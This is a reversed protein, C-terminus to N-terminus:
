AGYKDTFDRIFSTIHKIAKNKKLFSGSLSDMIANKEILNSYEYTSVQERLVSDEIDIEKAFTTLEQESMEEEYRNYADIVSEDPALTPAVKDLFGKILEIKLRLKPDSAHELEQKIFRIEKDREKENETNLSAILNLIYSVNIKDTHMLELEFDIDHLISEKSAESRKFEEYVKFYKSKYDEYTQQSIMLETEDFEFDSFSQLRQLMKTVNKFAVIFKRKDEERELEDVEEPIVAIERLSRLADKFAKLYEEYSAMLVTDVNDTRSFLKIADDTNDKLNRYCVVNGYPKTSKEVRNTRSYAQLLDHYVMNKDIYLTNLPKSDFGTLFMKVVLLIDIQAHKVKKSVDSFYRDWTETSYDTNYLKNYDVIMRDLAERSHEGTGDSEENQGYSYIGAIKLKHDKKKFIDYYKILTSISDVAFMACYGKSKSRRIHNDLIHDAILNLRREDHWVEETDIAQVKTTDEENINANFTRIYEVSFGLVNGDRIADKILYHHLCKEFLDATTRGDQSKNEVFRPTGTFGFYQSNQFHRDIEKRMDGFQSRHCEDIIFVVHEQKYPAMINEYRPNKIANNMKQITTVIFRKMPDKVQEILIETKDTRDVSGKQFKNFESITQSDLDQRDVLFFVKKISEEDALIQGAKFSTLTKGSGTTHWIYGNNKTETARKVLAEVAYVQYPRMVMLAKDTDNIVMYRSIMKALHCPQLFSRSFDQLSTILENKEDSWFFTFGFQIDYDSNSFYKTDVGNSVVFIQLFRYLGTFTHRRYRQIQNFAEKFDLGRRKLEIQALPLGNILITVDYRNTYKGTITTQTTVQFLNKCWDKTNLLEVYLQTGDEREVLLKDRLIKSSDYISKGEILTLIRKFEIDSIPQGNLKHENFLNLQQKFNALLADYNAIKVAQYGQNVLQKHLNKELEAEPQYGM